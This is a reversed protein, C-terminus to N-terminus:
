QESKVGIIGLQSLEQIKEKSPPSPIEGFIEEYQKIYNLLLYAFQKAHQPSM